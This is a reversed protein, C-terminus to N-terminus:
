FYRGTMSASGLARITFAVAITPLGSYHDDGSNNSNEDSSQHGLGGAFFYPNASTGANLRLNM